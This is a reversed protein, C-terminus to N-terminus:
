TLDTHHMHPRTFHFAHHCNPCWAQSHTNVEYHQCIVSKFIKFRASCMSSTIFLTFIVATICSILQSGEEREIESVTAQESVWVCVCVCFSQVAVTTTHDCVQASCTSVYQKISKQMNEKKEKTLYTSSVNLQSLQSHLLRYM